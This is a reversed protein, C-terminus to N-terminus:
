ADAGYAFLDKGKLHQRHVAVFFPAFIDGAMQVQVHGIQQLRILALRQM